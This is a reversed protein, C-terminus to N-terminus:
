PLSIADLLALAAVYAGAPTWDGSEAAYVPKVSDRKARKLASRTMEYVPIFRAGGRTALQRLKRNHDMLRENPGLLRNTGVAPHTMIWRVSGPPPAIELRRAVAERAAALDAGRFGAGAWGGLIVPPDPETAGATPTASAAAAPVEETWRFEYPSASMALIEAAYTLAARAGAAAPGAPVELKWPTGSPLAPAAPAADWRLAVLARAGDGPAGPPPLTHYVLSLVDRGNFKLRGALDLRVPTRVAEAVREGNVWVDPTGPLAHLFAAVPRGRWMYPVELAAKWCAAASPLELDEPGPPRTATTRWVTIDPSRIWAEPIASEIQEARAKWTRITSVPRRKGTKRAVGSVVGRPAVWATGGDPPTVVILLNTGKRLEAGLAVTASPGAWALPRGNLFVKAGDPLGELFVAPERWEGPQMVFATRLWAGQPSKALPKGAAVKPWAADKTERAM